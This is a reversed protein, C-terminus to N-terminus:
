RVPTLRSASSASPARRKSRVVCGSRPSHPSSSSRVRRGRDQLAAQLAVGSMGPMQIDSILCTAEALSSALFEEASTFTHAEFGYSRVLNEIASRVEEDDDIIGITPVASM